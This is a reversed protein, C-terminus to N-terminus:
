TTLWPRTVPRRSGTSPQLRDHIRQITHRQKRPAALDERLMADIWGMAPDLVLTRTRAPKVGPELRRDRRIREFIEVRSLV